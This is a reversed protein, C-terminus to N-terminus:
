ESIMYSLSLLSDSFHVNEVVLDTLHLGLEINTFNWIGKVGLCALRNATEAAVGPPVTLIGIDVPTEALRTNLENTPYVPVGAITTGILKPDIDYIATLTVGYHGFPFNALLARGLRGAGVVVATHGKNMGMIDAIETMLSKVNYGYGQQGFEGFCSLDQRIQSATLGTREGLANSSIRVVGSQHLAELHRYYRPLRRIVAPSIKNNKKLTRALREPPCLNYFITYLM